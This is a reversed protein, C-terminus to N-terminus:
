QVGGAREYASLLARRAFEGLLHRRYEASARIDGYCRYANAIAHGAEVAIAETLPGGVLDREAAEPRVPMSEAGLLVVRAATVAPGQREVVAGVAAVAFDGERESLEIFRAGWDGKPLRFHLAAIMEDPRLATSFAGRFLEKAAIRRVGGRAVAEVEGDLLALLAPLEATPDAHAVSGGATGHRRITPHAIHAATEAFIPAAARLEPSEILSRHRVLAGVTVSERGVEIGDLPLRGIDILMAPRALRLNMMPILSQGGALLRAEDGHEDLLACAQEVSDARVYDFPCPKM